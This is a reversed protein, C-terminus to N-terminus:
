RGGRPRMKVEAKKLLGHIKGYSVNHWEAIERVQMGSDYQSVVEGVDLPVRVGRGTTPIDAGFRRLLENTWSLSLGFYEAIETRSRGAQWARLMEVNRDYREDPTTVVLEDRRSETGVARLPVVGVDERVEQM